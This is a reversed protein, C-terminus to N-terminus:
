IFRNEKCSLLNFWLAVFTVFFNTTTTLFDWTKPWNISLFKMWLSVCEVQSCSKTSYKLICITHRTKNLTQWCKMYVYQVSSVLFMQTVRCRKDLVTSIYHFCFSNSEPWRGSKIYSHSNTLKLFFDLKKFCHKFTKQFNSKLHLFRIKELKLIEEYM